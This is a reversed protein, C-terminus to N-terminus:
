KLCNWSSVQFHLTDCEPRCQCQFETHDNTYKDACIRQTDTKLTPCFTINQFDYSENAELLLPDTCNCKEEVYTMLCLRKCRDESYKHNNPNKELDLEVPYNSSCNSVYPPGQRTINIVTM